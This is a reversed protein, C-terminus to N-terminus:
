RDLNTGANKVEWTAAPATTPANLQVSGVRQTTLNLGAALTQTFGSDQFNTTIATNPTSVTVTDNETGDGGDVILAFPM